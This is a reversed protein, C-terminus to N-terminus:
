LHITLENSFKHTMYFILIFSGFVIKRELRHIRDTLTAEDEERPIKRLSYPEMFCITPGWYRGTYQKLMRLIKQHM